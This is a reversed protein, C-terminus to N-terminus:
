KNYFKTRRELAELMVTSQNFNEGFRDKFYDRLRVVQEDLIESYMSKLEGLIQQETSDDSNNIKTQTYQLVDVCESGLNLVEIIFNIKKNKESVFMSKNSHKIIEEAASSIDATTKQRYKDYLSLDSNIKKM